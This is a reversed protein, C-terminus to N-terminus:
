VGATPQDGSPVVSAYSPGDAEPRPLRSSRVSAFPSVRLM